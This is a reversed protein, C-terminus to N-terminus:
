PADAMLTERALWGCGLIPGDDVLASGVIRVRCGVSAYCCRPMMERAPALLLEGAKAVSGGVVYLEIDLVMAMTAVAIGLARGAGSMAALAAPDGSAARHAVVEGSLAGEDDASHARAGRATEYRRALWPGALYTEVCGRNGCACVEGEPDLTVHGIEGAANHGGRYLRGDMIIAAGVGTGVVIYVMSREGRGAGYHFEGMAAAKADHELWVPIGLRTSLMERLPANHLGPLNPPDVLRGAVHDVPGPTCIGLAAPAPCGPTAERLREVADAIAEVTVQPEAEPVTAIRQRAVIRDEPDILGLAIKTGGLDVGVVWAQQEQM